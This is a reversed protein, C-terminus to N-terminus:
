PRDLASINDCHFLFAFCDNPSILDASCLNNWLRLVLSKMNYRVGHLLRHLCWRGETVLEEM